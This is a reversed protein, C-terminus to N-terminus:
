GSTPDQISEKTPRQFGKFLLYPGESVLLPFYKSTGLGALIRHSCVGFERIVACVPLLWLVAVIAFCGVNLAAVLYAPRYWHENYCWESLSAQFTWVFETSAQEQCGRDPGVNYLILSYDVLIDRLFKQVSYQFLILFANEVIAVHLLTNRSNLWSVCCM